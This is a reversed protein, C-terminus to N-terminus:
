TVIEGQPGRFVSVGLYQTENSSNINALLCSSPAWVLQTRHSGHLVHLYESVDRLSEWVTWRRDGAEVLVRQQSRWNTMMCKGVRYDPIRYHVEGTVRWTM